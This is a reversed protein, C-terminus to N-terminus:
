VSRRIEFGRRENPRRNGLVWAAMALPLVASTMQHVVYVRGREAVIADRMPDLGMLLIGNLAFWAIAALVAVIRLVPRRRMVLVIGAGAAGIAWFTSVQVIKDSVEALPLM